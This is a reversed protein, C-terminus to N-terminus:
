GHRKRCAETLAALFPQPDRGSRCLWRAAHDIFEPDKASIAEARLFSAALIDLATVGHESEICVTLSPTAALYPRNDEEAYALMLASMCWPKRSMRLFLKALM